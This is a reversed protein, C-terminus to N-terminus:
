SSGPNCVGLMSSTPPSNLAFYGLLVDTADIEDCVGFDRRHEEDSSGPWCHAARDLTILRVQERGNAAWRRHHVTSGCFRATVGRAGAAAAWAEAASEVPVDWRPGAGGLYPNIDDGRGHIALVGVSTAPLGPPFRLGAVAGISALRDPLDRVLYCCLRAGGSFGMAHVSAPDIRRIKSVDDLVAAVFGVDDPAHARPTQEGVLPAGPISWARGDRLDPRLRFPIAAEPLLVIGGRRCIRDSKTTLLHRVPDSGSGHLDVIVPSPAIDSDGAPEALLYRRSQGDFELSRWQYNIRGSSAAVAAKEASSIM